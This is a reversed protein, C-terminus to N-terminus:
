FITKKATKAQASTDKKHSKMQANLISDAAAKVEITIRLELDKKALEDSEKIRATTISDIKQQIQNKTLPQVEKKCSAVGLSIVGLVLIIKKM